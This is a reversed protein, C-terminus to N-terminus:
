EGAEDLFWGYYRKLIEARIITETYRIGDINVIREKIFDYLAENSEKQVGVMIGSGSITTMISHLAPYHYIKKCVADVSEPEVDMFIHAKSAYGLKAPNPVAIVKIIKEEILGSIRRYITTVHTGLQEALDQANARGDKVLNKILRWDTDNLKVPTEHYPEKEFLREYRKIIEKIFHPEVQMVGDMRSLDKNIFDHLMEWKPFYVSIIIDYRGFVTQVLNVNFNDIMQDCVDHIKSPDVRIAILANAALGLKFPNPLARIAIAESKILAEIRRPVTKPNIGLREALDSYSRRGDEQLELILRFDTNSIMKEFGCPYGAIM